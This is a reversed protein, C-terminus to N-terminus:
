IQMIVQIKLQDRDCRHTPKSVTSNASLEPNTVKVNDSSARSSTSPIPTLDNLQTVAVSEKECSAPSSTSPTPVPDSLQTVAVSEKECVNKYCYDGISKESGTQSLVTKKSVKVEEKLKEILMACVHELHITTKHSQSVTYKYQRFTRNVRNGLERHDEITFRVKLSRIKKMCDADNLWGMRRQHLLKAVKQEEM